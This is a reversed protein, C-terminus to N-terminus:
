VSSRFCILIYIYVKQNERSKETKWLYTLYNNRQNRSTMKLLYQWQNANMTTPACRGDQRMVEVELMLIRLKKETESDGM